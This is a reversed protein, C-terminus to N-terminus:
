FERPGTPTPPLAREPAFPPPTAYPTRDLLPSDVPPLPRYPTLPAAYVPHSEWRNDGTQIQRQGIPQRVPTMSYRYGYIDGPVYPWPEFVSLPQGSRDLIPRGGYGYAYSLSMGPALPTAYPSGYTAAGYGGYYITESTATPIGAWVKMQENLFLQQDLNARRKEEGLRFADLGAQTGDYSQEQASAKGGFLLGCAMAIWGIGVALRFNMTREM